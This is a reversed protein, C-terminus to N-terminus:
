TSVVLNLYYDFNINKIELAKACQLFYLFSFTGRTIRRSTASLEENVGIQRLKENLMQYTIQRAKMETKLVTAALNAWENKDM